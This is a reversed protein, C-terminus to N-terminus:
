GTILTSNAKLTDFNKQYRTTDEGGFSCFATHLSKDQELRKINKESFSFHPLNALRALEDLRYLKLQGSSRASMFDEFCLYDSDIKSDKNEFIIELTNDRNSFFTRIDTEMEEKLKKGTDEGINEDIHNYFRKTFVSASGCFMYVHQSKEMMLQMVSANHARDHNFLVIRKSSTGEDYAKRLEEKYKAIESNM